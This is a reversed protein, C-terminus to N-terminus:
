KIVNSVDVYCLERKGTYLTDFYVRKGDKSFRPHLDCRTYVAHKMDHFFEGLKIIEQSNQNYAILSQMRSLDPYSDIIIWDGFATPHGDKPHFKTVEECMYAQKANIDIKYFGVLNNKEGYGFVTNNDIWCFHSQLKGDLLCTLVGGDNFDYLMLRDYRECGIRCRHIFIFKDGNPCVMIHNLGHFGGSHASEKTCSLIDSISILLSKNNKELDYLWIGDHDYDLIQEDSPIPLNQYAYCPDIIRLRQFNPSLIYKGNVVDMTPLPVIRVIEEKSLSYWKSVYKEGDYDNYSIIDNTLWLARAGMQWNYAKSQGIVIERSDCLSKVIIKVHNESMEHFLVRGNREPSKDYYGFFFEKNSNRNIPSLEVVESNIQFKYPKKKLWYLIHRVQEKFLKKARKKVLVLNRKEGPYEISYM